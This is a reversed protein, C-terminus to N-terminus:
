LNCELKFGQDHEVFILQPWKFLQQGIECFSLQEVRFVALAAATSANRLRSDIDSKVLNPTTM